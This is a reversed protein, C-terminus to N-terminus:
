ASRPIVRNVFKMDGVVGIVEVPTGDRDIFHKGLPNQGALHFKAVADTVVAVRV